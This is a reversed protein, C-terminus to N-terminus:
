RRLPAHPHPTETFLGDKWRMLYYGQTQILAIDFTETGDDAKRARFGVELAGGELSKTWVSGNFTYVLVPRGDYRKEDVDIGFIRPILIVDSYGDGNLDLLTWEFGGSGERGVTKELPAIFQERIIPTKPDSPWDGLSLVDFGNALAPGTDAIIEPHDHTEGSEQAFAPFCSAAALSSVFLRRGIKVDDKM